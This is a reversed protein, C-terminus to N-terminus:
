EESAQIMKLFQDAQEKLRILQAKLVNGENALTEATIESLRRLLEDLLAHPKKRSKHNLWEAEIEFMPTADDPNEVDFQAAFTTGHKDDYRKMQDWVAINEHRYFVNPNDDATRGRPMQFVWKFLANESEPPIEFADEGINLRQRISPKKSILEFLYYDTKGFSEGDPLKDEWQTRFHSFWSASKLQRKTNTPSLSAEDAIQNIVGQDWFLLSEGHIGQFLHFYRNLLWLDEAYNGWEKAGTIHRVALVRPLRQTLEEVSEAKIRVVPLKDTDKVIREIREVLEEQVTIQQKSTISSKKRMRDLKSKAKELEKTRIIELAVRRRNGEVVVYRKEEKPPQWVIINDIQMWGQGIIAQILGEIDYADQGIESLIEKQIDKDFLRKIEEYGPADQLALRPNNPDPYLDSISVIIPKSEIYTEM